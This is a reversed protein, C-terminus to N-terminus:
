ASVAPIALPMMGVFDGAVGSELFVGAIHRAVSGGGITQNNFAGGTSAIAYSGRTAAGAAAVKVPVICAGALMVVTTYAGIAADELFVCFGQEGAACVTVEDDAAGYKGLTGRVAPATVVKMKRTLANTLNQHARITM